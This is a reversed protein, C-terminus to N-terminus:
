PEPAHRSVLGSVPTHYAKTTPLPVAGSPLAVHCGVRGAPIAFLRLSGALARAQFVDTDGM